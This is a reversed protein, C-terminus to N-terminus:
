KKSTIRKQESDQVGLVDLFFAVIPIGVILGWAGLLAEM